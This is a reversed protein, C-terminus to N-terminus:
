KEKDIRDLTRRLKYVIVETIDEDTIKYAIKMQEIMVIVDAMKEALRKKYDKGRQDDRATLLLTLESLEQVAQIEQKKRGYHNLILDEAEHQTYMERM